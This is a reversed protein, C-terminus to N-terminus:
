SDIPVGDEDRTADRLIDEFSHDNKCYVRVGDNEGLDPWNDGSAEFDPHGWDEVTDFYTRESAPSPETFSLTLGTWYQVRDAQLEEGCRRADGGPEDIVLVPCKDWKM